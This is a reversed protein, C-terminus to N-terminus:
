APQAAWSRRRRMLSGILGFGAIMMIWSAPEPVSPIVSLQINDLLAGQNDSLGTAPDGFVLRFAGPAAAVFTLSRTIFPDTGSVTCGQGSSLLASNTSGAGGSFASCGNNGFYSSFQIPAAFNYFQTAENYFGGFWQDVGQNRQNGGIAFSLAISDGANYTFLTKSVLLGANGTSGDLDVCKGSGGACTIGFQGSQILDVTGQAPPAIFAGFGNYNLDSTGPTGDGDFSETFTPGALAPSCVAAFTACAVSIIALKNM